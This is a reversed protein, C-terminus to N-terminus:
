NVRRKLQGIIDFNPIIFSNQNRLSVHNYGHFALEHNKSLIDKTIWHSLSEPNNGKKLEDWGIYLFPPTVKQNYNFRVCIFILEIKFENNTDIM